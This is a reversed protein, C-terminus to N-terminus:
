LPVFPEFVLRDLPIAGTLYPQAFADNLTMVVTGRQLIPAPDHALNALNANVRRCPRPCPTDLPVHRRVPDILGATPCNRGATLYSWPYYAGFAIGWDEPMLDAGQPVMDLDIRDIGQQILFQRWTQITFNLGQWARVQNRVITEADTDIEQMNPAPMHEPFRALRKQKTLMRGLVPKFDPFDRRLKRLVGWDNVVVEVDGTTGAGLSGLTELNHVIRDLATDVANGTVYTFDWQLQRAAFFAQTVREPTPILHECFEQGFYLRCVADEDLGMSALREVAILHGTYDAANPNDFVTSKLAAPMDRWDLPRFLGELDELLELDTVYLCFQM